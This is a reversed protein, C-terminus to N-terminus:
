TIYFMMIMYNQVCLNLKNLYLTSPRYFEYADDSDALFNHFSSNVGIDIEM